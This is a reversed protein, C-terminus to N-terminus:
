PVGFAARSLLGLGLSAGNALLSWLLAHRLGAARLWGAEVLVAFAEASAVQALYPADLLPFAFWVFPHTLLSALAAVGLHVGPSGPVQGAGLLAALRPPPRLALLYLPIEVAETFLFAALWAQLLTM